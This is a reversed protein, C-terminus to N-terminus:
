PAMTVKITDRPRATAAWYRIDPACGALGVRRDRLGTPAGARAEQSGGPAPGADSCCRLTLRLRSKIGSRPLTAALAQGTDPDIGYRYHRLAHIGDACREKDFWMTPFLTRVANVGDAVGLKPVIRVHWGGAGHSKRSAGAGGWATRSHM